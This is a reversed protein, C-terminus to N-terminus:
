RCPWWSGPLLLLLMLLATLVKRAIVASSTVTASADALNCQDPKSILGWAAQLCCCCCCCLCSTSSMASGLTRIKQTGAFLMYREQLDVTLAASLLLMVGGADAV